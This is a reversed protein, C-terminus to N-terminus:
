IGDADQAVTVKDFGPKVKVAFLVVLSSKNRGFHRGASGALPAFFCMGSAQEVMSTGAPRM